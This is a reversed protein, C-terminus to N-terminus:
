AAAASRYASPSMGYQEQFLRSFTSRSSFGADECVALISVKEKSSLAEAAWRLRLHNIFGNLTFGSCLKVAEALYTRNTGLRTCLNDRSLDPNKFLEEEKMIALLSAYLRAEPTSQEEIHEMLADEAKEEAQINEVSALYLAKNKRRLVRAYIFVAVAIALLLSAVVSLITVQQRAVANEMKLEQLEYQKALTNLQENTRHIQASDNEAAYARYNDVALALDGNDRQYDALALRFQAVKVWNGVRRNKAILSDLREYASEKKGTLQEFQIVATQVLEEQSSDNYIAALHLMTDQMARAEEMRGLRQLLVFRYRAQKLRNGYDPRGAKEEMQRLLVGTSDNMALGEEPTNLNMAVAQLNFGARLARSNQDLAQLQRFAKRYHGEAEKPQRNGLYFQGFCFETVAQGLASGREQAKQSMEQLVAMAEDFRGWVQLRDLLTAYANFLYKDESGQVDHFTILERNVQLFGEKDDAQFLEALRARHLSDAQRPNDPRGTLLLFVLLSILTM